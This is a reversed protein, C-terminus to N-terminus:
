FVIQLSVNPTVLVVFLMCTNAFNLPNGKFVFISCLSIFCFFNMFYHSLQLNSYYILSGHVGLSSSFDIWYLSLYFLFFRSCFYVYIKKLFTGCLAIQLFMERHKTGVCTTYLIPTNPCKAGLTNKPKPTNLCKPSM